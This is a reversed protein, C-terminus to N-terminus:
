GYAYIKKKHDFNRDNIETPPPNRKGSRLQLKVMYYMNAARQPQVSPNSAATENQLQCVTDQLPALPNPVFSFAAAQCEAEERCWGQCEYLSLNRVTYYTM